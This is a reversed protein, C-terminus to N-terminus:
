GGPLYLFVAVLLIIGAFLYYGGNLALGKSGGAWNKDEM